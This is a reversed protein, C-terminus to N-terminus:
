SDPDYKFRMIQALITSDTAFKKASNSGGMWTWENAQNGQAGATVSVSAFALVCMLFLAPFRVSRPLWM